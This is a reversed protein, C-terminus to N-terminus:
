RLPAVAADTGSGERRTDLRQSESMRQRSQQRRAWAQGQLVLPLLPAKGLMVAIAPAAWATWKGSESGSVCSM